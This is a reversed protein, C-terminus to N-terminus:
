AVVVYNEAISELSDLIQSIHQSRLPHAPNEELTTLAAIRELKGLHLAVSVVYVDRAAVTGRCHHAELARTDSPIVIVNDDPRTRNPILYQQFAGSVWTERSNLHTKYVVPTDPQIDPDVM